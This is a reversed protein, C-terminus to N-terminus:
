ELGMMARAMDVAAAPEKRSTNVEYRVEDVTWLVRTFWEGTMGDYALYYQGIGVEEPLPTADLQQAIQRGLNAIIEKDSFEYSYFEVYWNGDNWSLTQDSANGIMYGTVGYGLNYEGTEQNYQNELWLQQADEHQVQNEASEASGYAVIGFNTRSEGNKTEEFAELDEEIPESSEVIHISDFGPGGAYAYGSFYTADPNKVFLNPTLYAEYSIFRALDDFATQFEEANFVSQISDDAEESLDSAIEDELPLSVVTTDELMTENDPNDMQCASLLTLTTLAGLFIMQKKM